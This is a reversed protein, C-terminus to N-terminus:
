FMGQHKKIITINTFTNMFVKLTCFGIYFQISSTMFLSFHQFQFFYMQRHLHNNIRLLMTIYPVIFLIMNDFHPYTTCVYIYLLQYKPSVFSTLKLDWKMNPEHHMYSLLFYVYIPTAIKNASIFTYDKQTSDVFLHCFSCANTYIYM